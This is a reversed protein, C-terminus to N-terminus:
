ENLSGFLIQHNFIKQSIRDCDIMLLNLFYRLVFREISFFDILRDISTLINAETSLNKFFLIIKKIKLDIKRQNRRLLKLSKLEINKFSIFWHVSFYKWRCENGHLWYLNNCLYLSSSWPCGYCRKMRIWWVQLYRINLPRVDGVLGWCVFAVWSFFSFANGRIKKREAGKPNINRIYTAHTYNEKKRAEKRMNKKRKIGVKKKRAEAFFGTHVDRM